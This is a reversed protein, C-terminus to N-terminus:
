IKNVRKKHRGGEFNTKIFASVCKLAVKKKTL